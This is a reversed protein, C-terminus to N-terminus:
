IFLQVVQRLKVKSKYHKTQNLLGERSWAERDSQLDSSELENPGLENSRFM